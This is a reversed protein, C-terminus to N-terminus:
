FHDNTLMLLRWRIPATKIAVQDVRLLWLRTRGRSKVIDAVENGLEVLYLKQNVDLVRNLGFGEGLEFLIQM